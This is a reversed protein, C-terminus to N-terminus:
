TTEESMGSDDFEKILNNDEHESSSEIILENENESDEQHSSLDIEMENDSDVLHNNNIAANNSSTINLPWISTEVKPENKVPETDNENQISETEPTEDIEITLKKGDEDDDDDDDNNYQAIKNRLNDDVDTQHHDDVKKDQNTTALSFTATNGTETTNTTIKFLNNNVSSYISSSLAAMAYSPISSQPPSPSSTSLTVPTTATTAVTTVEEISKTIEEPKIMPIRSEPEVIKKVIDDDISYSKNSDDEEEYNKKLEESLTNVVKPPSSVRSRMRPDRNNTISKGNTSNKNQDSNSTKLVNLSTTTTTTTMTIPPVIPVIPMSRGINSNNYEMDNSMEHIQSHDVTSNTVFYKKLRPDNRLTGDNQYQDYYCSYNIISIKMAVLRYEVIVNPNCIKIFTKNNSPTPLSSSRSDDGSISPVNQYNNSSQQQPPSNNSSNQLRKLRPDRYEPKPENSPLMGNRIQRVMSAVDMPISENSVSTQTFTSPPTLELPGFPDGIPKDVMPLDGFPNSVNTPPYYNASSPSPINSNNNGIQDFIPNIIPAPPISPVGFIPNITGPLVRLDEDHASAEILRKEEESIALQDFPNINDITNSSEVVNNSSSAAQPGMLAKAEEEEKVRRQHEEIEQVAIMEDLEDTDMMDNYYNMIQAEVEEEDDELRPTPPKETIAFMEDICFLNKKLGTYAKELEKLEQQWTWTDKSKKMKPLPEGLLVPRPKSLLQETEYNFSTDVEASDMDIISADFNNHTKAWVESQSANNFRFPKPDDPLTGSDLYSRLIERTEETLPAHSFRCKEGSYCETNTHFFKCPFEGHMFLCDDGKGCFGQLYFKCLDKRKPVVCDHSFHCDNGKHCKGDLYFKCIAKYKSAINTASPGNSVTTTNTTTAPTAMTTTTTSVALGNTKSNSNARERTRRKLRAFRRNTDPENGHLQKMIKLIRLMKTSKPGGILNSEIMDDNIRCGLIEMLEDFELQELNYDDEDSLEVMDFSTDNFCNSIDRINTSSPAPPGIENIGMKNNLNNRQKNMMVDNSNSRKRKKSNNKKKRKGHGFPIAPMPLGIGPGQPPPPPPPPSPIKGFHNMSDDRENAYFSSFTGFQPKIRNNSNRNNVMNDKNEKEDKTQHTQPQYNMPSSQGHIPVIENDDDDDAIEGDELIEGEEPDNNAVTNAGIQTEMMM